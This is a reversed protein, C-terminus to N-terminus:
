VEHVSEVDLVKQIDPHINKCKDKFIRISNRDLKMIESQIKKTPRNVWLSIKPNLKIMELVFNELLSNFFSIIQPDNVIATELVKKSPSRIEFIKSPWIRVKEIQEKETANSLYPCYSSTISHKKIIKNDM